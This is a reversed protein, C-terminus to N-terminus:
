VQEELMFNDSITFELLINAFIIARIDFGNLKRLVFVEHWVQFKWPANM